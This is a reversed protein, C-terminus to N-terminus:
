KNMNIWLIYIDIKMNKLIEIIYNGNFTQYGYIKCVMYPIVMM